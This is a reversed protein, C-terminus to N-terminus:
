RDVSLHKRISCTECHFSASTSASTAPFPSPSDTPAGTASPGTGTLIVELSVQCFGLRRVRDVITIFRELRMVMDAHVLVLSERPHTTVTADLQEDTVAHDNV